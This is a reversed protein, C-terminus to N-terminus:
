HFLGLIFKGIFPFFAGHTLMGFFFCPLLILYGFLKFVAEWLAESKWNIKM